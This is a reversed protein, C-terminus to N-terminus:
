RVKMFVSNEVGHFELVGRVRTTLTPVTIGDVDGQMLSGDYDWGWTYVSGDELAAFMAIYGTACIAKVNQLNPTQIAGAKDEMDGVGLQGGWNSGATRITKDAMLFMVVGDSYAIDAVGALPVTVVQAALDEAHGVGAQGDYNSGCVVVTGDNKLFYSTQYSAAAKKVNTIAPTQIGLSEVSHGLGLEGESNAGWTRVTGDTLVVIGHELGLSIQKILGAQALATLATIEHYAERYINTDTKNLQGHQGRNNRGIAWVKKSVKSVFVSFDVGLAFDEVLDDDPLVVPLVAPELSSFNVMVGGAERSCHGLNGFEDRGATYCKGDNQLFGIHPINFCGAIKKVDNMDIWELVPPNQFPLGFGGGWYSAGWHQYAANKYLNFMIENDGLYTCRASAVNANTSILDVFDGVNATAFDFVEVNLSNKIKTGEIECTFATLAVMESVRCIAAANTVVIFCKASTRASMSLYSQGIPLTYKIPPEVTFTLTAEGNADGQLNHVCQLANLSNSCASLTIDYEGVTELDMSQSFSVLRSGHVDYVGHISKISTSAFASAVSVRCNTIKSGKPLVVFPVADDDRGSSSLGGMTSAGGIPLVVYATSKAVLQNVTTAIQSLVPVEDSQVAPLVKLRALGGDPATFTFMGNLWSLVGGNKGFRLANAVGSLSFNSKKM